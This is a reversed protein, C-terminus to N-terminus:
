EKSRSGFDDSIIKIEAKMRKEDILAATNRYIKETLSTDNNIILIRIEPDRWTPDSQLFRLINLSFSLHRGKGNWWIDIREKKGFGANKDYDLFVANLKQTKVKSDVNDLINAIVVKINKAYQIELELWIQDTLCNSFM